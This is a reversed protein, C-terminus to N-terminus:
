VYRIIYFAPLAIAGQDCPLYRPSTELWQQLRRLATPRPSSAPKRHARYTHGADVQTQQESASVANSNSLRRRALM